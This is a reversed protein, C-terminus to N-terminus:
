SRQWIRKKPAPAVPRPGPGSAAPPVENLNQPGTQTAVPAPDVRAPAKPPPTYKIRMGTAPDLLPPLDHSPACMTALRHYAPGLAPHVLLKHMVNLNTATIVDKTNLPIVGVIPVGMGASLIDDRSMGVDALNQSVVIGIKDRPLGMGGQNEPTTMERIMRALGAVATVVMTTTVLIEDSMPFVVDSNLKHTYDVNCDLIVVDYQRQLSKIVVKYFEPGVVDASRPRMPALLCDVGLDNARVMHEKIVEDSWEDHVRINLATPMVHGIMSGLQSDKIDLDVIAVKLPRGAAYSSHSIQAGLMLATTSKASGGKSSCVSITLQGRLKGTAPDIRSAVPEPLPAQEAPDTIDAAPSPAPATSEGAPASEPAPAVDTAPAAAPAPPHAPTPASEPAPAVDTALTPAADPEPLGLDHLPTTSIPPTPVAGTVPPDAPVSPTELTAQGADRMQAVAPNAFPDEEVESTEPQLLQGGFTAMEQEVRALPEDVIPSYDGPWQFINGVVRRMTELVARGGANVPLRHWVVPKPERGQSKAHAAAHRDILDSFEQAKDDDWMAVFVPADADAMSFVAQAIKERENTDSPLGAHLSDSFVVAASHIDLEGNSLDQWLADMSPVPHQTDWLVGSDTLLRFIPEEAAVIIRPVDQTAM